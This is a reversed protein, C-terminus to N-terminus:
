LLAAVESVLCRIQLAIYKKPTRHAM